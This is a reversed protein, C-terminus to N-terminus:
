RVGEGIIRLSKGGFLPCTGSSLGYCPKDAAYIFKRYACRGHTSNSESYEPLLFICESRDRIVITNSM